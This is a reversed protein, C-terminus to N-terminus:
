LCLLILTIIIQWTFFSYWNHRYNVSAWQTPDDGYINEAFEEATMIRNTRWSFSFGTVMSIIFIVPTNYRKRIANMYDFFNPRWTNLQAMAFFQFNIFTLM